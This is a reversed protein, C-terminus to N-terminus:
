GLAISLAVATGAADVNLGTHAKAQATADAMSLDTLGTAVGGTIEPNSMALTDSVSIVNATAGGGDGYLISVKGSGPVTVNSGSGQTVIINRDSTLSNKIFFFAQTTNPAITLTVDGGLDGGDVFEIVRYMGDSANSSGSSPSSPRVTLTETTGTMTISKYGALRDFIDFNLNTTTGWTGSQEGTGPKEIAFNTTFTSAM